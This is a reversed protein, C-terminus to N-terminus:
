GASGDGNFASEMCEDLDRGIADALQVGAMRCGTAAHGVIAACRLKDLGEGFDFNFGLDGDDKLSITVTALKSM